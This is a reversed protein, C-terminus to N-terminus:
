SKKRQDWTGYRVTIPPRDAPVERL